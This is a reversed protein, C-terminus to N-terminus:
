GVAKNSRNGHEIDVDGCFVFVHKGKKLSVAKRVTRLTKTSPNNLLPPGEIQLL